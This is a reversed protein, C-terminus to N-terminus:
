AVGGIQLGDVLLSGTRIAGARHIDEGVATVARLMDKLNGGVTVDTVAHVPEGDEIWTGAVAYTWNGTVPDAAGGMLRTVVLGRGMLRRLAELSGGPARSSLRLNWPGDANGTSVMGLQRASRTRLFYGEVVGANLIARRRGAVGESDFAGSALGYPESPDETLNLHDAAVTRGLAGPLFTAGRYQSAGSLAGVLAGVLATAVRAEFIVPGRHTTVARAGLRGVAREVARAALTEMSELSEFRRDVSEATDNAAGGADRALAVAWINHVSALQGRRFGTSTALATAVESSSVGAAVTEVGTAPAPRAARILADGRLAMARLAALDHTAPAGLPPSPADAAMQDPSPPLGEPDE